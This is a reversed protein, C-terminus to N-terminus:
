AGVDTPHAYEDRMRVLRIGDITQFLTDCWAEGDFFYRVQISFASGDLLHKQATALDSTGDRALKTPHCKERVSVAQAYQGLDAIFQHFTEESILGNWTDPMPIVQDNAIM